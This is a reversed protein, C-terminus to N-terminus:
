RAKAPLPLVTVRATPQQDKGMGGILVLGEDTILLGRNNTTPNPTNENFVEWQTTRLNFAFTMASAEAPKGDLGLGTYGVPNATGGSFYIKHEKESAGAAMGYRAAGPHAPLKSWDIRAPNHRDIKGIWCQESPLYPPAAGPSNRYAGDVLVITDDLLAGAHGFVPTGPIPTAQTWKNKQADYLQVNAVVAQNSRGGILYIYRERYVGSVSDAVAVPIDSSRFWKGTIPAYANVDPVVMGRNQPDIVYGGFLFVTDRASAATAAIRGVPGPVPRTPYWKEWGPDLYYGTNTVADWTRAAGVGMFSFLLLHGRVKLTAVANGSVPAPLPPLKIEEAAFPIGSLLVLFLLCRFLKTPTPM